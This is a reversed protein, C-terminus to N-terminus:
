FSSQAGFDFVLDYGELNLGREKARGVSIGTSIGMGYEAKDVPFLRKFEAENYVKNKIVFAIKGGPALDATAGGGNARKIRAEDRLAGDDGKYTFRSFFMGKFAQKKSLYDRENANLYIIQKNVTRIEVVGDKGKEGYETEGNNAYSVRSGRLCKSSIKYLIEKDYEVGDILILPKNGLREVGEIVSLRATDSGSRVIANAFVLLNGIQKQPLNRGSVDVVVILTLLSLMISKM